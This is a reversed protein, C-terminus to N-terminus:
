SIWNGDPMKWRKNTKDFMVIKGERRADTVEYPITEAGERMDALDDVPM